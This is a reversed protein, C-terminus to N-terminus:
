KMPENWFIRWKGDSCLYPQFKLTTWTLTIPAPDEELGIPAGPFVLPRGHPCKVVQGDSPGGWIEVELEM